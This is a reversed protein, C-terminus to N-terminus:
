GAWSGSRRAMAQAPRTWSTMRFYRSASACFRAERANFLHGGLGYLSPEDAASKRDPYIEWGWHCLPRSRAHGSSAKVQDCYGCSPRWNSPPRPPASPGDQERWDRLNWQNVGLEVALQKVRKDGRLLLAVVDRRFARDFTRRLKGPANPM